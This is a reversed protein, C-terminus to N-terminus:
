RKKKKRGTPRLLASWDDDDDIKPQELEELEKRLQEEEEKRLQSEGEMRQLEALRARKAEKLEKLRREEAEREIREKKVREREAREERTLFQQQWASLDAFDSEFSSLITRHLVPPPTQPEPPFPRSVPSPSRSAISPPQVHIMAPPPTWRVPMDGLVVAIPPPIDRSPPVPKAPMM